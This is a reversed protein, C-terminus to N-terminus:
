AKEYKKENSMGVPDKSRHSFYYKGLLYALAVLIVIPLLGANIIYAAVILVVFVIGTNNKNEDKDITRGLQRIQTEMEGTKM